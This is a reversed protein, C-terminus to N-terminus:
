PENEHLRIDLWVLHHDSVGIWASGPEGASPWFVGGDQIELERSPLVYDLRLNGTYKDNFDATDAAPSGHQQKNIGGQALSAEAAGTSQPTFSANVRPHDLLQRAAGPMSDGDNPDANIDGLLVFAESL